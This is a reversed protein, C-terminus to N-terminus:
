WLAEHLVLPTTAGLKSDLVDFAAFHRVVELPVVAFPKRLQHVLVERIPASPSVALRRARASSFHDPQPVRRPPLHRFPLPLTRIM